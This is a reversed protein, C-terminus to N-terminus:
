TLTGCLPPTIFLRSGTTLHSLHFPRITDVRVKTINEQVEKVRQNTFDKRRECIKAVYVQTHPAMDLIIQGIHSGHGDVDTDWASSCFSKCDNAAIRNEEVYNEQLADSLQLGTDLIAVRIAQSSHEEKTFRKTVSNYITNHVGELQRRWDQGAIQKETLQAPPITEQSPQGHSADCLSQLPTEYINLLCEELPYLIREFIYQRIDDDTIDICDLRSEQLQTPELCASVANFCGERIFGSSVNGQTERWRRQASLAQVCRDQDDLLELETGRLIQLLLIGLSLIDPLCHAEGLNHTKPKIPMKM